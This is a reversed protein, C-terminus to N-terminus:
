IPDTLKHSIGETKLNLWIRELARNLERHERTLAAYRRVIAVGKAPESPGVLSLQQFLGTMENACEEIALETLTHLLEFSVDPSAGSKEAMIEEAEAFVTDLMLYLDRVLDYGDDGLIGQWKEAFAEMREQIDSKTIINRDMQQSNDM